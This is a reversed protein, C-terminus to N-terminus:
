AYNLSSMTVSGAADTLTSTAGTLTRAAATLTRAADTLTTSADTLTISGYTETGYTGSKTGDGPMKVIKNSGVFFFDGTSSAGLAFTNATGTLARVWQLTGSSNYKAVASYSTASVITDFGVYLNDSSDLAAQANSESSTGGIRRQWQITGANNYKTLMTDTGGATTGSNVAGVAYLDGGASVACSNAFDSSTGGLSRQWQLTGASNYKVILMDNLGAGQSDTRGAVYVDGASSVGVNAFLDAGAGGLGVQWQLTGSSNYKVLYADNGGSGQSSQYGACYINSSTDVAIGNFIDTSTGGIIRQWQIAGSSDYAVLLADSGGQGQSSTSGCVYINNSSDVAVKNFSAGTVTRNWLITGNSSIKVVNTGGSLIINGNSDFTGGNPIYPTFNGIWHSVTAGGGASAM